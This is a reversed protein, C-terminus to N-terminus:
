SKPLFELRYRYLAVPQNGAKFYQPDQPSLYIATVQDAQIPQQPASTHNYATTTEVENFYPQSLGRFVQQSIETTLFQEPTPTETTRGTVIAVLQRNGRLTTIQRNPSTPDVQVSLVARDGLYARALSMGNFARDAVVSPMASLTQRTPILSKRDPLGATAVFKVPFVIPQNLSSRNSDFGPSVITPSLPAALDVLTSTVSWEGLFWNPYILDGEVATPIAPKTHWNPFDALRQAIPSANAAQSWLLCILTFCCWLAKFM